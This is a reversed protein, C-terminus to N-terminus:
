PLVLQFRKSIQSDPKLENHRLCEARLLLKSGQDSM